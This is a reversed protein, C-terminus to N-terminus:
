SLGAGAVLAGLLAGLQQFTEDFGSTSGSAIAEDHTWVLRANPIVELHRGFVAM